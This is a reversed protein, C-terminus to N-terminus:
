FGFGTHNRRTGLSLVLGAKSFGSMLAKKNKRKLNATQLCSGPSNRDIHALQVTVGENFYLFFISQLYFLLLM